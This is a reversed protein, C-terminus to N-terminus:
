EQVEKNDKVYLELTALHRLTTQVSLGAEEAIERITKYEGNKKPISHTNLVKLENKTLQDNVVVRPEFRGRKM